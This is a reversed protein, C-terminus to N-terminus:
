LKQRTFIPFIDVEVRSPHVASGQVYIRVYACVRIAQHKLDQETSVRVYMYVYMCVDYMM